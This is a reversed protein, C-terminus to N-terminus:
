RHHEGSAGSQPCLPLHYIKQRRRIEEVSLSRDLAACIGATYEAIANIQQATLANTFEVTQNAKTVASRIKEINFDQEEGSRKLIKM